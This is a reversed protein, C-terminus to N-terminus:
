IARYREVVKLDDGDVTVIGGAAGVSKHMSKDYASIFEVAREKAIRVMSTLDTDDGDLDGLLIIERDGFMRKDSTPGMIVIKNNVYAAVLHEAWEKTIMTPQVVRLDAVTSLESVDIESWSQPIVIIVNRM